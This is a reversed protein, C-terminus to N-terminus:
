LGRGLTGSRGGASGSRGPGPRLRRRDAAGAPGAWGGFLASV